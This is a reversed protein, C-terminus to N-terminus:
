REEQDSKKLQEPAGCLLARENADRHVQSVKKVPSTQKQDNALMKKRLKALAALFLRARIM